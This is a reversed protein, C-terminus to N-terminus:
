EEEEDNSFDDEDDDAAGDGGDAGGDDGEEDGGGETKRKKKPPTTRPRRKGKPVPDAGGGEVGAQQLHTHLEPSYMPHEEQLLSKLLLADLRTMLMKEHDPNFPLGLYVVNHEIAAQALAGEGPTM